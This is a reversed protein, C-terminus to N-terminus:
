KRVVRKTGGGWEGVGDEGKEDCGEVSGRDTDERRL